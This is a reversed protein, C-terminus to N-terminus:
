KRQVCEDLCSGAADRTREAWNTRYMQRPFLILHSRNPALGGFPTAIFEYLEHLINCPSKCCALHVLANANEVGRKDCAYHGFSFHGMKIKVLTIWLATFFPDFSIDAAPRFSRPLQQFSKPQSCNVRSVLEYYFLLWKKLKTREHHSTTARFVSYRLFQAMFLLQFLHISSFAFSNLTCRNLKSNSSIPWLDGAQLAISIRLACACAFANAVIPVYAAFRM